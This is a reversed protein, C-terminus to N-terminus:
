ILIFILQRQSYSFFICKRQPQFFYSCRNLISLKFSFFIFCFKIILSSGKSFTHCLWLNPHLSSLYGVFAGVERLIHGPNADWGPVRSSKESLLNPHVSFDVTNNHVGQSSGCFTIYVSSLFLFCMCFLLPSEHSGVTLFCKPWVPLKGLTM